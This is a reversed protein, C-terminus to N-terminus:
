TEGVGAASRDEVPVGVFPAGEGNARRLAVSFLPVGGLGAPRHAAVVVLPRGAAVATTLVDGWLAIAEADLGGEPEDVLLLEPAAAIARALAVRQRQGTSLEAV